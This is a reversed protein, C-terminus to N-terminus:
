KSRHIVDARYVKTRAAASVVKLNAKLLDGGTFVDEYNGPIVDM